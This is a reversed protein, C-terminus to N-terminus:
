CGSTYLLCSQLKTELKSVNDTAEFLQVYGFIVLVLMCVVTVAGLLTFPAVATKAKVRQERRPLPREEPLGQPQRPLPRATNNNYPSYVDYAAAGSTRYYREDAM